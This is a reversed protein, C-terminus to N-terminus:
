RPLLLHEDEIVILAPLGFARLAPLLVQEFRLTGSRHLTSKEVVVAATDDYQIIHGPLWDPVTALHAHHEFAIGAAQLTVVEPIVSAIDAPNDTIELLDILLHSKKAMSMAVQFGFPSDKDGIVHVVRQPRYATTEPHGPTFSHLYSDFEEALSEANQAAAVSPQFSQNALLNLM